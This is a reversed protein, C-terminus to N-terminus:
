GNLHLVFFNIMREILRYTVSTLLLLSDIYKLADKSSPKEHDIVSEKQTNNIMEWRRTEHEIFSKWRKLFFGLDDLLIEFLQFDYVLKMSELKDLEVIM